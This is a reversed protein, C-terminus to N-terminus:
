RARARSGSCCTSASPAARTSASIATGGHDIDWGVPTLLILADSGHISRATSPSAQRRDVARDPRRHVHPNTESPRVWVLARASAKPSAHLRSAASATTTTTGARATRRATSAASHRATEARPGTAYMPEAFFQGWISEMAAVSIDSGILDLLAFPGLRFGPAGTMIRDVEDFRAIGEAVLRGAEPVYARGVHNVIFGPSDISILPERGMRKALAVLADTM